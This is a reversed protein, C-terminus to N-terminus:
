LRILANLREFGYVVYHSTLFSLFLANCSFLLLGFTRGAESTSRTRIVFWGTILISAELTLLIAIDSLGLSDTSQGIFRLALHLGYNMVCWLLLLLKANGIRCTPREGACSFVACHNTNELWCIRHHQTNCRLCRILSSTYLGEKCYPCVIESM